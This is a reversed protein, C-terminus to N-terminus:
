QYRNLLDLVAPQKREIQLSRRLAAVADERSTMDQRGSALYKNLLCVGVGNLAPFYDADLALGARFQALADDYRQQRFYATALREHAAPTPKSKILQELTNQMEEFRKLKGLSDSLNLLLEPSLEMLEAAQQFEVVALEHQNLAAYVAGLNVRAPGSEGNLEVAKKAPALAPGPEQLQLYATALGFNADFSDPRVKLARLYARVADSIRNLLQLVVGHEYQADYSSPQLDAAKAYAPEASTYDGRKKYISGIGMYAQPLAPNIEIARKFEELAIDDLGQSSLLNGRVVAAQADTATLVPAPAATTLAIPREKDRLGRRNARNCGGLTPAVVAVALSALVLQRATTNM